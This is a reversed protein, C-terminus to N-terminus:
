RTRCQVGQLSEFYVLELFYVHFYQGLALCKFMFFTNLKLYCKGGNAPAAAAAAFLFFFCVVVCSNQFSLLKTSWQLKYWNAHPSGIPVLVVHGSLWDNSCVTCVIKCKYMFVDVVCVCM